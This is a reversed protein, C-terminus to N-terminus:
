PALRESIWVGTETKRYRLRDHLRNDRHHWFEFVRPQLRYGGWTPPVPVSQDALQRDLRKFDEMLSKRSPIVESQKSVSAALQYARPRSHFYTESEERSITEVTGEIRVQRRLHPWHFVLAARPNEFLQLGKRSSYNTYFIFGEPGFRKLLIMRATVDGSRGSTALTTASADFWPGPSRDIAARFWLSFRQFPNEEQLRM